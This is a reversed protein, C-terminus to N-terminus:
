VAIWWVRIIENFFWKRLIKLFFLRCFANLFMVFFWNILPFFWDCDYGFTLLFQGRMFIYISIDSPLIKIILVKFCLIKSLLDNLLNMLTLRTTLFDYWRCINILIRNFELTFRCFLSSFEWASNLIFCLFVIIQCSILFILSSLFWPILHVGM